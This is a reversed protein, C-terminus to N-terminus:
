NSEAATGGNRTFRGPRGRAAVPHAAARAPPREPGSARDPPLADPRTGPRVDPRTGPQADPRAEPRADPRADPRASAHSPRHRGPAPMSSPLLFAVLAVLVALAVSPKIPEVGNWAADAYAATGLHAAGLGDLFAAMGLGLGALCAIQRKRWRRHDRRAGLGRVGSWLLLLGALAAGTFSLPRLLVALDRDRAEPVATGGGPPDAAPDAAPSGPAPVVSGSDGATSVMEPPPGLLGAVGRVAVALYFLAAGIVLLSTLTRAVRPGLAPPRTALGGRVAAGHRLINM